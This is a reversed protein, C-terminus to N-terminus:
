PSVFGPSCSSPVELPAVKASNRSGPRSPGKQSSQSTDQPWKPTLFIDDTQIGMHRVGPIITTMTQNVKLRGTITANGNNASWESHMLLAWFKPAFILGMTITVLAQLLAM